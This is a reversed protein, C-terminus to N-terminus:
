GSLGSVKSYVSTILIRATLWSQSYSSTFPLLRLYKQNGFKPADAPGDVGYLM